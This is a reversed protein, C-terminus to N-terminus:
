KYPNKIGKKSRLESRSAELFYKPPIKGARKAEKVAKLYQKSLKYLDKAKM